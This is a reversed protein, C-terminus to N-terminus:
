ALYFDVSISTRGAGGSPQRRVRHQCADVGLGGAHASRGAIICCEGALTRLLMVNHNDQYSTLAERLEIASIMSYLM